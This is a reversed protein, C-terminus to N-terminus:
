CRSGVRAPLGGWRPSERLDRTLKPAEGRRNTNLRPYMEETIKDWLRGLERIRKPIQDTEVSRSAMQLARVSVSEPGGHRAM